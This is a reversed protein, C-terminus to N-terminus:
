LRHRAPIQDSAGAGRVLHVLRRFLRAFDVLVARHAARPRADLRHGGLRPRRCLLGAQRVGPSRRRRGSAHGLLILDSNQATAVALITDLVDGAVVESRGEPLLESVGALPEVLVLLGAASAAHGARRAHSVIRDLETSKGIFEDRKVRGLIQREHKNRDRNM